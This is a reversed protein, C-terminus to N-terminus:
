RVYIQRRFLGVLGLGVGLLTLGALWLLPTATFEQVPLQPPHSLPSLQQLWQPLDLLESFVGAVVIIGVLVWGLPAMLAPLWGFLLACLGLVVLLAPLLNLHAQLITGILSWDGTSVAAGMGTGVGAVVMIVAAGLAIVLVHSGAWAARSIPTALVAEARGETEEARLGQIAFVVYAATIYANLAAIFALYGDMLAQSGFVGQLAEPMDDGAEVMLQTFAGDLVGLATISLGWAVLAALQLRVALGLPTGLFTRARGPGHPSALLGAGLDRRHQLAFSVVVAVVALAALLLLPWWRDHVFPATQSAWGLPSAWSLGSGGVAAMDGLARLAFAAGLVAGALGAAPRSHESLQATVAAIGAFAMGVLATGTGVLLSGTAAYGGAVALATVIVLAALNALVAVTLAATLHAHRGVVSARVLEARGSEEEARTHRTILLISMLAALIFLYLVYGSAFFREYTLGDMGYAPGTFMRGVPQELLPALAGLDEETEAITPLAASVYLVYLGMGAVWAPLKLRDRRLALRVLAGTGTRPSNRGASHDARKATTAASM